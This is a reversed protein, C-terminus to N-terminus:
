VTEKEVWPITVNGQPAEARATFEYLLGQETISLRFLSGAPVQDAIERPVRLSAGKASKQLGYLWSTPRGRSM